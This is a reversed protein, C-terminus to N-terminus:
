LPLQAPNPAPQQYDCTKRTAIQTFRSLPTDTTYMSPSFEAL